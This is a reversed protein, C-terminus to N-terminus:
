RALKNMFEKRFRDLQKEFASGRMGDNLDDEAKDYEERAMYIIGINQLVGSNDPDYKLATEFQTEAKDYEKM